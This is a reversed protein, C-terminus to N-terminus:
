MGHGRNLPPPIRRRRARLFATRAFHFGLAGMGLGFLLSAAEFAGFGKEHRFSSIDGRLFARAQQLTEVVEPDQSSEVKPLLRITSDEHRLLEVFYVPRDGSRRPAVESGM